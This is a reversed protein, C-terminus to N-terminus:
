VKKTLEVKGDSLYNERSMNWIGTSLAWKIDAIIDKVGPYKRGRYEFGQYASIMDESTLKYILPNYYNISDCVIYEPYAIRYGSKDFGMDAKTSHIAQYYLYPQIYGRKYLYYEEYFNEVSWVCKVDYIYILKKDHDVIVKDLMSKLPLGDIEYGEIQFQNFIQYRKSNMLNIVENTVFNTKLEEAIREATAIEESTALVKNTGRTKKMENYYKETDSGVFGETKDTGFMVRDYPIKYGTEEYAERAMDEFNRTVKGNEDVSSKSIKYLNEVFIAMLGTPPKVAVSEVVMEEFHERTDLVLMEVLRGMISAKTDKDDVDEGLVYKRYYLKRDKAFDRLSSSSDIALQRYNKENAIRGVAKIM